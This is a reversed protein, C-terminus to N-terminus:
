APGAPIRRAHWAMTRSLGAAPDTAPVWGLLGRLREIAVALHEMEEPRTPVAGFRLRAADLHLVRAATEIFERVTALNGTALNVTWGAPGRATGLRLLGEAVDEVYTFDRRQRGESLLVPESHRAAAVLTPVLRGDHEGPGYVTFLRATIGRFGTTDGCREIARTGALKTIGYITTPNEMGSEALNGGVEGYELASGAHILAYGPWDSGGRGALATAVSYPLDANIQRAIQEDRETRDVGYGALNFVVAPRIQELLAEVAALDTVDLRVLQGTVGHEALVTRSGAPDRVACFVVAGAQSLAQAVWRGIFGSAGLVLVRRGRYSARWDPM